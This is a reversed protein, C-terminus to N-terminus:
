PKRTNTTKIAVNRHHMQALCARKYLYFLIIFPCLSVYDLIKYNANKYNQIETILKKKKM